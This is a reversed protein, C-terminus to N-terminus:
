QLWCLRDAGAGHERIVNEVRIATEVNQPYPMGHTIITSELAVLPLGKALANKVEASYLLDIKPTASKGSAAAAATAAFTLSSSSSAFPRLGIQSAIRAVRAYPSSMINATRWM